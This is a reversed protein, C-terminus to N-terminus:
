RKRLCIIREIDDIERLEMLVGPNIIDDVRYVDDETLELKEKLFELIKESTQNCTMQVPFSSQRQVLVQEMADVFNSGSDEDVAFDADRAIKFLLTEEVEFGAFLQTGYRM